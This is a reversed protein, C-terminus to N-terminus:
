AVAEEAPQAVTLASLATRVAAIVPAWAGPEDQRYLRAAPYWATTTGSMWRWDAAYHLLVWTPRGLAASLHATSTDSTLVLDLEGMVAATDTFDRVDAATDVIRGAPKLRELDKRGDGQQLVHWEIGPLDFLPLLPDLRPSRVRDNRVSPNGAWVLGVRLADRRPGLRHRWRAVTDAPVTLYPMTAPFDANGVGLRAPVSLLPAHLDFPPLTEGADLVAEVGPLTGALPKLGSQLELVIRAGRRALLSVFRLFQLTDGYGQEWYLLVRKGQVDGGNWVPQPYPRPRLDPKALRWEYERFGEGFEGVTLLATALNYHAHTEQPRTVLIRRYCDIAEPVHRARQLAVGLNYHTEPPADPLQLARQYCQAAEDFRELDNLANGLHGWAEAFEPKAAIARRALAEAEDLENLERHVDSLLSLSAAHNRHRRVVELYAGKAKELQKGHRYLNGLNFWADTYDPLLTLAQRYAREAAAADELNREIVGLLCWADPRQPHMALSERVAQRALRYRGRQYLDFAESLLLPLPEDGRLHKAAKRRLPAIEFRDALAREVRTVVGTWDAFEDQRFLRVGPYWLTSEGLGWRWDSAYHLLVWTECGLASALHATSTDSSIVLDLESMIAATDAFDRVETGLDLVNKRTGLGALDKRGDGQQLLVWQVDKHEFLPLLPALRPSRLRDNKVNPNGAWVLGVRPGASKGLRKRWTARLEDQAFLYPRATPLTAEDLGLVHPISLLSQWVDFPPPPAPAETVEVVGPIDQVLRKLGPQVELVVQGGAAVVLPIFRLYQLVDGYGQEWHLFIRRGELLEGKWQPQSYDRPPPQKRRHRWEYEAFGERLRGVMLLALAKDWHVDADQPDLAEGRALVTLQDEPRGAASLAAALNSVATRSKPALRVAEEYLPLSEHIRDQERLLNAYNGILDAFDPKLGLGRRYASAALDFRKARRLAVAYLNWADPRDCGAELAAETLRVAEATEDRDLAEIAQRLTADERGRREQEARPAPAIELLRSEWDRVFGATDFLPTTGRLSALKERLAQRKAPDRALEVAMRVYADVDPAILEPLGVARLLSAGVRTAFTRGPCTLAPLGAWLADSMTTHANYAFTDLFLDALAHRALHEAKRQRPAFVLRQPDVGAARATARLQDRAPGYGDILWLVSGPVAKLIRMWADFVRPDLKYHACFSAFVVGTEPLGAEARTPTRPDIPQEDDNVQYCHPMYLLRETYHAAQEPPVVTADVLAYDIFPAGLSGPYGLWAVQIPAPRYALIATRAERTYGKLDVLVDIEDELIRAAAERDSLTSLDVFHEAEGQIRTRYDSGDNPGYSYAYVEFRTRDHRKFMGLMLHATAHDHFDASLYGVRIRAHPGKRPHTAYPRVNRSVYAAFRKAIVLQQAEDIDGPFATFPFPLAPYNEGGVGAVAPALLTRAAHEYGTWDCLKQQLAFAYVFASPDAEYTPAARRLYVLAEEVREARALATGLNVWLAHEQLGLKEAEQLVTLAGSNQGVRLRNLGLHFKVVPNDPLLTELRQYLVTLARYDGRQELIQAGELLFGAHQLGNPLTSQFAAFAQDWEGAERLTRLRATQREPDSPDLAALRGAATAAVDNRGAGPAIKVLQQLAGTHEPARDTAERYAEVAAAADGADLLANGLNFWVDAHGAHTVLARRYCDAAATPNGLGREAIGLLFWTEGDTPHDALRGRAAQAAALHDKRELATFIQRVGTDQVDQGTRRRPFNPRAAAPLMGGPAFPCVGVM